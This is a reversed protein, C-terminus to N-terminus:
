LSRTWRGSRVFQSFAKGENENESITKLVSQRASFHEHNALLSKNSYISFNACVCGERSAKHTLKGVRQRQREREFFFFDLLSMKIAKLYGLTFNTQEKYIDDSNFFRSILKTEQIICFPAKDQVADIIFLLFELQAFNGLSHDSFFSNGCNDSM